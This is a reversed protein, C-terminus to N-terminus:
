DQKRPSSPSTSDKKCAEDLWDTKRARNLATVSFTQPYLKEYYWLKAFYFGIPAPEDLRGGEIACSLWEIGSVVAPRHTNGPVPILADIALSTEEITSPTGTMGGWGGDSNQQRLLWEIARAAEPSDCKNLDNFAALVKATGYVPNIEDPAHQNGFWLPLWYGDDHQEEALYRFGRELARPIDAGHQQIDKQWAHIARICHATLDTGSRDFPLHGWGRCFTPWGGGRNQLDLLWKV